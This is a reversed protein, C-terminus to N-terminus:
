TLLQVLAAAALLLAVAVLGVLAYGVSEGKKELKPANTAVARLCEQAVWTKVTAEDYQAAHSKLVNLDPRLDWDGVRTGLFVQWVMVLYVAFAIGFLVTALVSPNKNLVALVAGFIPLLTGAAGLVTAAKGDLADIGSIQDDLRRMAVDYFTEPAAMM